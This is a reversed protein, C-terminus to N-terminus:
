SLLIEPIIKSIIRFDTLYDARWELIVDYSHKQAYLLIYALGSDHWDDKYKGWIHSGLKAHRDLYSGLPAKSDNVHFMIPVDLNKFGDLYEKALDYSTIDVGSAFVHCTDICIGLHASIPKPIKSFLGMISESTVYQPVKTVAIELFLRTKYNHLELKELTQIIDDDSLNGNHPLHLVLGSSHIRDCEKLQKKITGISQPTGKITSYYSTHVYIHMGSNSLELLYERDIDDITSKFSQPGVLFIQAASMLFGHDKAKELELRIEDRIHSKGEKAIHKGIKM